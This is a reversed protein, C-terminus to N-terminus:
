LTNDLAEIAHIILEVSHIYFETDINEFTDTPEHYDKHDEVGFYIFPIDHNYFIRHDSSNTWDSVAKNHPNDHGFLLKINETSLRNLPKQLQQNHYLGSAYIENDENRGIMDMNVNLIVKELPVPSHNVLYECGLSGIEEADVAALILTHNPKHNKFYNGISLLAAVGSANDDAGNYITNNDVGLHDLHATIFFAEERAGDIKVVVNGGSVSTDEVVESQSHPTNFHKTKEWEAATFNHTFNQINGNSFAPEIGLSDFQKSIFQRAKENGESGFLRGQLSDHSIVRLHHILLKENLFDIDISTNRKCATIFLFALLIIPFKNM